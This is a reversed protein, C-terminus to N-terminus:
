GNSFVYSLLALAGALLGVVSLVTLIPVTLAAVLAKGWGFQHVAKTAVVGLVAAYRTILITLLNLYPVSYLFSDMLVIPVYFAAYTFVLRSFSGRGGLIRALIHALGMLITLGVLLGFAGIPVGFILTFIALDPTVPPSPFLPFLPSASIGFIGRVGLDILTNIFGGVMCVILLCLYARGATARPGDAIRTYNKLSPVLATTWVRVLSLSAAPPAPPASTSNSLM